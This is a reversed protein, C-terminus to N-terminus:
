HRREFESAYVPDQRRKPENRVVAIWKGDRSLTGAPLREIRLPPALPADPNMAWQQRYASYQLRDDAMWLADTVDKGYHLLRWPKATGDTSVLHTETRTSNDEEIRTAVSFAVWKGNPSIKVNGVTQIRYFGELTLARRGGAPRQAEGHLTLCLLLIANSLFCFRARMYRAMVEEPQSSAELPTLATHASRLVVRTLSPRM